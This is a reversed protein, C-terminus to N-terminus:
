PRPPRDARRPDSDFRGALRVLADPRHLRDDPRYGITAAAARVRRDHFGFPPCYFPRADVGFLEGIRDHSRPLEDVIGRDSLSTLDPHSWTHNAIQVQGSVVLPTLIDVNTAWSSCSAAFLMLRTGTEHAFQAYARVVASDTGNDVGSRWCRLIGPVEM